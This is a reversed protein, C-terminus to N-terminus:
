RHSCSFNSNNSAECYGKGVLNFISLWKSEFNGAYHNDELEHDLLDNESINQRESPPTENDTFTDYNQM